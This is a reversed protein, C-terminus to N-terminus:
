LNKRYKSDSAFDSLIKSTLTSLSTNLRKGQAVDLQLQCGVPSAVLMKGHRHWKQRGTFCLAVGRVPASLEPLQICLTGLTGSTLVAPVAAGNDERDTDQAPAHLDQHASFAFGTALCSSGSAAAASVALGWRFHACLLLHGYWPWVPLSAHCTPRMCPTLSFPM